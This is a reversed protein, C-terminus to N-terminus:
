FIVKLNTDGVAVIYVGHAPLYTELNGIGIAITAGSINFVQVPINEAATVHLIGNIVHVEPIEKGSSETMSIGSSPPREVNKVPTEISYIYEITYADSYIRRATVSFGYKQNENWEPLTISKSIITADDLSSPKSTELGIFPVTVTEGEQLQQSVRLDSLFLLGKESAPVEISVYCKSTAGELTVFEDYWDSIASLEKSSIINDSADRLAVVFRKVNKGYHNLAVTVTGNDHSLDLLPSHLWSTGYDSQYSNDLGIAGNCWAYVGVKWGARSIKDDLTINYLTSEQPEAITGSTFGSFDEDIFDYQGTETATSEQYVTLLYTTARDTPKWNATFSQLTIETADLIEPAPLGLVRMENSESSVLEGKVAKVTYYYPKQTDVGTVNHSTAEVTLEELIYKRSGNDHEFVNLIYSDADECEEWNVTFSNDTLDTWGTAVPAKIPSVAQIVAIDDIFAEGIGSTFQLYCKATGNTFDIECETWEATIDGYNNYIQKGTVADFLAINIYGFGLGYDYERAKFSVTFKGGNSSLDLVPTVLYGSQPATEDGYAGFYAAGGAQFLGRGRWGPQITYNDPIIGDPTDLAVLQDESGESFAGFHEFLVAGEPIQPEDPATQYYIEIDDLYMPANDPAFQIKEATSGDIFELTYEQWSTSLQVSRREDNRIITLNDATTGCAKFTLTFSGENATGDFEPTTLNGPFFGFGAMGIYCAGGASYIAEGSWGPYITYDSIGAWSIDNDEDPSEFSGATFKSFDENLIIVKGASTETAGSTLPASLAFATAAVALTTSYLIQRM